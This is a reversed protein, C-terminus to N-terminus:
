AGILFLVCTHGYPEFSNQVPSAFEGFTNLGILPVGEGVTSRIAALKQWLATPDNRWLPLNSSFVLAAAPAANGLDALASKAAHQAADAICDVSCAMWQVSAGQPVAATLMLAGDSHVRVTSRLRYVGNWEPIGLLHRPTKEVAPAGFTDLYVEMPARGDLEQLLNGASRTVFMRRSDPSCGHCAGVATPIRGAIVIGVVADRQVGRDTYVATSGSTGDDSAVGGVIQFGPGLVARVGAVLSASDLGAIDAFLLLTYPRITVFHTGHQRIRTTVDASHPVQNRVQQGLRVGADFPSRHLDGTMVPRVALRFGSWVLMIVVGGREVGDASIQWGSTCGVLVTGLGLVETAGDILQQQAYHASGFVIALDPSRANGHLNRKSSM